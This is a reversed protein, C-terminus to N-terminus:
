FSSHSCVESSLTQAYVEDEMELRKREREKEEEEETLQLILQRSADEEAQRLQEQEDKVQLYKSVSRM